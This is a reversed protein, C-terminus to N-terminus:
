LKELGEIGEETEWTNYMIYTSGVRYWPSPSLIVKFKYGTITIYDINSLSNKEIEKDSNMYQLIVIVNSGTFVPSKYTYFEDVELDELKM